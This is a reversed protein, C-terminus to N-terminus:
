DAKRRIGKLVRSVWVRSVGLHRALDAQSVFGDDALMRRYTQQLVAYDIPLRKTKVPRPLRILRVDQLRTIAARSLPLSCHLPGEAVAIAKEGRASYSIEIPIRLLIYDSNEHTEPFSHCSFEFWSPNHSQTKKNEARRQVSARCPVNWTSDQKVIGTGQRIKRGYQQNKTGNPHHV